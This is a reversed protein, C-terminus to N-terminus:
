LHASATWTFQCLSGAATANATASAVFGTTGASTVTPNTAPFGSVSGITPTVTPAARKPVAFRQQTYYASGSTTNGSWTAAANADSTEYFRMCDRLDAPYPLPVHDLAYSGEDIRVDKIEFYDAAGATGVPVFSFLVSLETASSSVVGTATFTQWSSALVASVAAPVAGGTYTGAAYSQDTGTGSVLSASLVASAASFDAGKRARFSLTATRGAFRYSDITEISQVFNLAEASTNANDRQVRACYGSGQTDVGASQRSVTMGAVTSGRYGWWRDLTMAVAAGVAVSTGLQAVMMSANGVPNAIQHRNKVTIVYPTGVSGDGTVSAGGAGTVYCGCGPTSGGCTGCLGTAM